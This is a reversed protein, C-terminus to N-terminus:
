GVVLSTLYGYYYAVMLVNFGCVLSMYLKPAWMNPSVMVDRNSVLLYVTSGSVLFLILWFLM